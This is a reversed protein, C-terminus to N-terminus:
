GVEVAPTAGGLLEERYSASVTVTEGPWLTVYNDTWLAPAIEPGGAGKRISVRTFFAVSNGNNTLTVDARTGTVTSSVSVKERPLSALGTFDAYSTQPLHYWTSTGLDTTDPSSSLWYVNRDVVNGSADRLLLRVLYTRSSGLTVRDVAGPGSVPVTSDSRVTGDLEFVTTQVTMGNVAGIAWVTNDDYSYQVHTPRLGKRAGFYGGSPTMSYDFLHWYLEPQANNLLWYIDGTSPNAPRLGNRGHAEFQARNVEYNMLQAKRVFDELSSPAGYRTALSHWFDGLHNFWTSWSLHYQVSDPDRWLAELEADTMFSKLAALEPIAAGPGNEGEFGFAGGAVEGYFFNPPVWWYPGAGKHGSPGLTESAWPGISPLLPLSWDTSAFADLYTKEVEPPPATDSGLYFSLVSPHNQLRFGETVASARAVAYDAQSWKEYHQWKSCCEWGPMLVIGMRDALEYFEDQEEKGELRLTNLGLDRVYSLEDRVRQRDDRLFLDPVWGAGRVQFPRGNIEFAQAGDANLFSRVHRIGFDKATRDSTRGDVSADLELRYLPQDGMAYPWWVRPREMYQKTEVTATGMAPVKVKEEFPGDASGRVLVEVDASTHNTLEARITLEATELSPVALSTLVRANHLSVPGTRVLRVDRWVGMSNDPPPQSWDLFDLTFQEYSDAPFVKIALANVGARLPVEFDHAPYAGAVVDPGAIMAGNLWIEASPIIGGPLRLFTRSGSLSNSLFTKRYWWPVVFHGANVKDRMNTSYHIDPYRGAAVLGGLVTSRRPVTTWTQDDYEPRSVVDGGVPVDSSSRLRWDPFTTVEGAGTPAAFNPQARTVTAPVCSTVILLLVLALRRM